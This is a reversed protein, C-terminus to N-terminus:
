RSSAAIAVRDPRPHRDLGVHQPARLHHPRARPEDRSCEFSSSNPRPGLWRIEFTATSHGLPRRWVRLSTGSLWRILSESPPSGGQQVTGCPRRRGVPAPRACRARAVAWRRRARRATELGRNRAQRSGVAALVDSAARRPWGASSTEPCCTTLRRAPRTGPAERATLGGQGLGPDRDQGHGEVAEPAALASAAALATVPRCRPARCRRPRAPRSREEVAVQEHGLVVQAQGRREQKFRRLALDDLGITLLDLDGLHRRRRSSRRRPRGLTQRPGHRELPM